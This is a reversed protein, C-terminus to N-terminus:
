TISRVHVYQVEYSLVSYLTQSYLHAQHVLDHLGQICMGLLVLALCWQPNFHMSLPHFINFNLFIISQMFTTGNTSALKDQHNTETCDLVTKSSVGIKSM